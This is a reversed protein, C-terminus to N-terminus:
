AAQKTQRISYIKAISKRAFGRNKKHRSTGKVPNNTNGVKYTRVYKTKFEVLSAKYKAKDEKSQKRAITKNLKSTLMIVHKIAETNKQNLEHKVVNTLMAEKVKLILAKKREKKAKRREKLEDCYFDKPINNSNASLQQAEHIKTNREEKWKKPTISKKGLRKRAEIEEALVLMKCGQLSKRSQKWLNRLKVREKSRAIKYEEKRNKDMKM